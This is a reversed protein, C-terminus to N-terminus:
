VHDRAQLRERTPDNGADDALKLRATGVLFHAEGALQPYRDALAIVRLGRQVTAAPDKTLAQRAEHLQHEASALTDPGLYPRLVLVAALAAAGLFFVPVQWLHRPTTSRATDTAM